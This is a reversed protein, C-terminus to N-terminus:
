TKSQRAIGEGRFVTVESGEAVFASTPPQSLAPNYQEGYFGKVDCDFWSRSARWVRWPPHEVRYELSSGDRQPVYGWYHETIFEEESGPKPYAPTGDFEAGVLNRRSRSTWGYEVFGPFSRGPDPLHVQSDMPCNVYNENYVWRAVAAIVFRPVIEKVFVVGRRWGDSAQHRVYFRLNVEEFNRHFPIPVGLFRTQLFLFGVMSVFHKGNFPDLETGPPILPQLIAADIEYNLMVLHRWAASLFRRSM